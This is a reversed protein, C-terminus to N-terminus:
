VLIIIFFTSYIKEGVMGNSPKLLLSDSNIVGRRYRGSGSGSRSSGGVDRKPVRPMFVILSM